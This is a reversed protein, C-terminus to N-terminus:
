TTTQSALENEDGRELVEKISEPPIVNKWIEDFEPPYVEIEAMTDLASGSPFKPDRPLPDLM